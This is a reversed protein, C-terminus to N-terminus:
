SVAFCRNNRLPIFYGHAILSTILSTIPRRKKKLNASGSQESRTTMQKSLLKFIIKMDAIYTFRSKFINPFGLSVPRYDTTKSGTSKICLRHTTSQTRLIHCVSIEIFELFSLPQKNFGGFGLGGM